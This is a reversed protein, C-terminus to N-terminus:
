LLTVKIWCYGKTVAPELFLVQCKVAINSITPLTYIKYLINSLFIELFIFIYKLILDMKKWCYQSPLWYGSKPIQQKNGNTLM